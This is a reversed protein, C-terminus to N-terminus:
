DIEEYLKHLQQRTTQRNIKNRERRTALLEKLIKLYRTETRNLAKSFEAMKKQGDPSNFLRMMRESSELEYMRQLRLFNQLLTQVLLRDAGDVEIEEDRLITLVTVIHLKEKKCLGDEDNECGKHGCYKNGLIKPAVLSNLDLAHIVGDDDEVVLFKESLEIAEEMFEDENM